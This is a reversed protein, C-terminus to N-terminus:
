PQHQGASIITTCCWFLYIVFQWFHHIGINRTL